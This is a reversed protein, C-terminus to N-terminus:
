FRWGKKGALAAAANPDNNTLKLFISATNPDIHAGNGRPLVFSPDTAGANAAENYNSIYANARAQTAISAYDKIQQPTIIDGSKLSLLKQYLGEGLSRANAHEQVTSANIRFGMGKLPTASLGIANFLSTVSQAGTIDKGADIDKLVDAFQNYSQETQNLSDLNKKFQAVVKGQAKDGAGAAAANQKAVIGAVKVDAQRGATADADDELSKKYSQYLKLEQQKQALVRQAEPDNPQSNYKFLGIENSVRSIAADIAKPNLDANPNMTQQQLAQDVRAARVQPSMAMWQTANLQGKQGTTEFISQNVLARAAEGNAESIKSADFIYHTGNVTVASLPPIQGNYMKGAQNLAATANENNDQVVLVPAVKLKSYTDLTGQNVADLQTQHDTNLQEVRRSNAVMNAVRAASEQSTFKIEAAQNNTAQQRQDILQQQQANQTQRQQESIYGAAGGAVGGGFSTAGKAGAVGSLAGLLVNKWMSGPGQTPAQPTPNDINVPRAQQPPASVPGQDQAPAPQPAQQPASPDLPPNVPAGQNASAANYIDGTFDPLPTSSM